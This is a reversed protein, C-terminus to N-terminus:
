RGNYENIWLVLDQATFKDDGNMDYKPDFGAGDNARKNVRFESFAIRIDDFDSRDVGGDDNMDFSDVVPTDPEFEVTVTLDGNMTVTNTASTSSDDDTGTWQKLKQGDGPTAGLTVVTGATYSGSGPSLTGEGIVVTTLDYFIQEEEDVTLDVQVFYGPSGVTATVSSGPTGDLYATLIATLGSKEGPVELKYAGSVVQGEYDSGDVSAKVSIMGDPASGGNIWGHFACPLQPPEDNAYLTPVIIFCCATLICVKIFFYISFGYIKHSPSYHKEM